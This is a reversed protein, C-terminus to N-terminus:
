KCYIILQSGSTYTFDDDYMRGTHETEEEYEKREGRKITEAFAEKRDNTFGAKVVYTLSDATMEKVELYAYDSNIHFDGNYLVM